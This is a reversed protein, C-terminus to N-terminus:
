CSPDSEALLLLSTQVKLINRIKQRIERAIGETTATGVATTIPTTVPVSTGAPIFRAHPAGSALDAALIGWSYKYIRTSKTGMSSAPPLTSPVAGPLGAAQVTATTGAPVTTTTVSPLAGPVNVVTEVTVQEGAGGVSVGRRRGLIGGKPPGMEILQGCLLGCRFQRHLFLSILLLFIFFFSRVRQLLHVLELLSDRFEPSRVLLMVFNRASQLRARPDTTRLKEQGGTLTEKARQLLGQQGGHQAMAAAAGEKTHLMIQQLEQGKNREQIM